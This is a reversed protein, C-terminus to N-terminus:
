LGQSHTTVLQYSVKRDKVYRSLKGEQYLRSVTNLITTKKFGSAAAIEESTAVPHKTLYDLVVQTATQDSKQSEVERFITTDATFVAELNISIENGDRNKHSKLTLIGKNRKVVELFVDAEAMLATSGRYDGKKNAHHILLITCGTKEKIQNLASVVEFIESAKNEDRGHSIDVLSDVILLRTKNELILNVIASFHQDNTPDFGSFAMHYIPPTQCKLDQAALLRQMRELIRYEGNEEDIIIVSGPKQIKYGLWDRKTALSVAWNMALYTKMAGPAGFLVILSNEPLIGEILYRRPPLKQKALVATPRLNFKPAHIAQEGSPYRLISSHIKEVEVEDLPPLCKTNNIHKLLVLIVDEDLGLQRMKGAQSILYNNREGIPIVQLAKGNLQKGQHAVREKVLNLLWDPMDAVENSSGSIEWVYLNGSSHISPPAVVYGGDARIDLGCGVKGVTSKINDFGIPYKFYIHRGGGGTIVQLTPPLQGFKAVLEGLSKEGDHRDDVDLVVLDSEKGTAIGVNANPKRKWWDNITIEDTTADKVGHPVLEAFPHKGKSPCHKKGCTCHNNQVAHLPLVRWGQRAYYLALEVPNQTQKVEKNKM